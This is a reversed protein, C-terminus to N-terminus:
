PHTSQSEEQTDSNPAQIDERGLKKKLDGNLLEEKYSGWLVSNKNKFGKRVYHDPNFYTVIKMFATVIM